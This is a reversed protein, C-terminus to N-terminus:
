RRYQLEDVSSIETEHFELDWSYEFPEQYIGLYSLDRKTYCTATFNVSVDRISEMSFTYSGGESYENIVHMEGNEVVYLYVNLTWTEPYSVELTYISSEDLIKVLDLDQYFNDCSVFAAILAVLFFLKYQVRM